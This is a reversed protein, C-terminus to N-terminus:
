HDLNTGEKGSREVFLQCAPIHAERQRVWVGGMRGAFADHSLILVWEWSLDVGILGIGSSKFGSNM